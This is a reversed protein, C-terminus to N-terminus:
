PPMVRSWTGAKIGTLLNTTFLEVQATSGTAVVMEVMAETAQWDRYEEISLTWATVLDDATIQLEAAVAALSASAFLQDRRRAQAETKTRTAKVLLRRGLPIRTREVTVFTCLETIDGPDPTVKGLRTLLQRALTKVKGSRDTALSDLFEVDDDSLGAQGVVELLALREPAQGTGFHEALLAQAAPPDTTRLDHLLRRRQSPYLYEWEDADSVTRSPNTAAGDVWGLWPGYVEPVDSGVSPFWDLPHMTFGRRDVLDVVRIHNGEAKLVRRVLPRVRDPVQPRPLTPLSPRATHPGLAPRLGVEFAQGALALLRRESEDADTTLLPRWLDPAIQAAQGGAIWCDRITAYTEDLTPASM